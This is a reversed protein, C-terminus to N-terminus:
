RADTTNIRHQRLEIQDLDANERRKLEMAAYNIEDAYYGAKHGTPNAALAERCDSIIFRLQAVTKTTCAAAYAAHDIQMTQSRTATNRENHEIDKMGM